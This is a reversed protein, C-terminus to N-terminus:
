VGKVAGAFWLIAPIPQPIPQSDYVVTNQISVPYVGAEKVRFQLGLITKTGSVNTATGNTRAVAVVVRGPNSTGDVTYNPSNGGQEFVSGEAFGLYVTHTEDFPVEFAIAFVGSTNTLTVNVTVVDNSKAGEAMAITNGAPSPQDPVFAAALPPSGGPDTGSGGGGGCAPATVLALVLALTGIKM